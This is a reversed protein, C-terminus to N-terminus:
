RFPNNWAEPRGLYGWEPFERLWSIVRPLLELPYNRYFDRFDTPFLHGEFESLDDPPSVAKSGFYIFDNSVLVRNTKIDRELNAINPSGDSHSHHSNAQIASEGEIVDRYINDGFFYKSSNQINPKKMQFRKDDWYENFTMAETVRMAFIVKHRLKNKASGGGVVWDGVQTARRIGPKCCALTCYGWFPNPAFGYDRAIKYSFLNTM